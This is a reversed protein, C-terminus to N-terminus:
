ARMMEFDVAGVWGPLLSGGSGKLSSSLAGSKTTPSITPPM